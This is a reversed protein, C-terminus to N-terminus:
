KLCYAEYKGGEITPALHLLYIKDFKNDPIYINKIIFDIVQKDSLPSNEFLCLWVTDSGNYVKACKDNLIKQINDFVQKDVDRPKDVNELLGVGGKPMRTAGRRLGWEIKAQYNEIYAVSIEIGINKNKLNYFLDPENIENGHRDFIADICIAKLLIDGIKREYDTKTFTHKKM